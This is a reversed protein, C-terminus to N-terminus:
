GVYGCHGVPVQCTQQQIRVKHSNTARSTRLHQEKTYDQHLRLVGCPVRKKEVVPNQKGWSFLKMLVIFTVFM